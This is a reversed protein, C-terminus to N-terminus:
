STLCTCHQVQFSNAGCYSQFYTQPTTTLKEITWSPDCHIPGWSIAATSRGLYQLKLIWIQNKIMVAFLVWNEIGFLFTLSTMVLLPLWKLVKKEGRERERRRRRRKIRLRTQTQIWDLWGTAFSFLFLGVNLRFWSKQDEQQKKENTKEEM